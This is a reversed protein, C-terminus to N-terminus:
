RFRDGGGWGRVWHVYRGDMKAVRRKTTIVATRGDDDSVCLEGGEGFDGLSIALQPATDKSDVHPSGEFNHTVAVYDYPCACGGGVGVGHDVNAASAVSAGGDAGGRAGDDASAAGAGGGLAGGGPGGGVWRLLELCQRMLVAYRSPPDPALPLVLYRQSKVKHWSLPRTLPHLNTPTSHPSPPRHPTSCM